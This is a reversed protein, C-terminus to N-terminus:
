VKRIKVHLTLPGTSLTTVNTLSLRAGEGVFWGQVLFSYTDELGSGTKPVTGTFIPNYKAGIGSGFTELDRFKATVDSIVSPNYIVAKYVANQQVSAPRTIDVNVTNAVGSALTVTGSYVLENADVAAGTGTNVMIAGDPDVRIDAPQNASDLGMIVNENDLQTAFNSM